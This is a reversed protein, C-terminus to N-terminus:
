ENVLIWVDAPCFPEQRISKIMELANRCEDAPTLGVALLGNRFSILVPTYGANEAKTFLAEANAVYNDTGGGRYGIYDMYTTYDDKSTWGQNYAEKAGELGGRATQMNDSANATEKARLYDNLASTAARISMELEDFGNIDSALTRYAGSSRDEGLVKMLEEDAKLWEENELNCHLGNPLCKGGITMNGKRIHKAIKSSFEGVEGVLNLLMYSLNECTVMCTNMAKTQYENMKM